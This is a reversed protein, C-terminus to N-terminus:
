TFGGIVFEDEQRVKVKLWSTSRREAYPSSADKAVVGEFGRRRAERYARLGDSALRRSALLVDSRGLAREMVVRRASLPERRLDQGDCYLCDFVALVADGAKQQLLQFRSVGRRDVVVAEGDLLLTRPTLAAIATAIRQFDTTRDKANRSLL